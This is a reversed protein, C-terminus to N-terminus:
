RGATLRHLIVADTATLRGDGDLDAAAAPAAFTVPGPQPGGALEHLLVRWDSPTVTGDGDLDGPLWPRTLEATADAAIPGFGGTLVTLRVMHIGPALGATPWHGLTEDHRMEPVPGAIPIWTAPEPGTGYELLYGDYGLPSDPGRIVRATGRLPTLDGTVATVPEIRVEVIGAADLARPASGLLCNIWLMAADGAAHVDRGLQASHFGIFVGHDDTTLQSLNTSLFLILQGDDFVGLYGGSGDCVSEQVTAEGNEEVILEGFVCHRLTLSTTGWCYYNWSAVTTNRFAYTVDGWTFDAVDLTTHGAVGSIDITHGREFVSGVARLASDRVAAHSGSRAMLAWMVNRCDSLHVAYPINVAWPTTGDLQFDALDGPPPLVTDIASGDFLTIWLLVTESGTVSLSTEGFPVFEGANICDTLSVAAQDLLAWTAFGDVVEVRVFDATAGGLLSIGFSHGNGGITGDTIALAAQDQLMCASQYAYAQRFCLRGQQIELAGNGMLFVHRALHLTCGGTVTLRGNNLIVLNGDVLRDSSLVVAEDPDDGGIVWDTAAVRPSAMLVFVVFCGFVGLGRDRL